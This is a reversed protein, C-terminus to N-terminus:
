VPRQLCDVCFIIMKLKRNRKPRNLKMSILGDGFDSIARKM